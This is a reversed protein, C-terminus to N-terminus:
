MLQYEPMQMMYGLMNRLRTLVINKNTTNTPNGLYTTWDAGWLYDAQGALLVGKLFDHQNATIPLAFLREASEAVLANVDVANAFTQVFAIPDILITAGSSTYGTNMMRTTWTSRRPLTDSNIWLEYFEPAQYYASWGSVDPPDGLFQAWASAQNVLYNLM